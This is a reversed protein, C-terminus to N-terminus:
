KVTQGKYSSIRNKGVATSVISMVFRNPLRVATFQMLRLM